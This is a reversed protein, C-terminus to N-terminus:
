RLLLPMAIRKEKEKKTKSGLDDPCTQAHASRHQPDALPPDELPPMALDAALPSQAPAAGLARRHTQGPAGQAGPWSQSDAVAVGSPRLGRIDERNAHRRADPLLRVARALRPYRRDTASDLDEPGAETYRPRSPSRVPQRKQGIPVTRILLRTLLLLWRRLMVVRSRLVVNSVVRIRVRDDLRPDPLGPDHQGKGLKHRQKGVLVKLRHLHGLEILAVLEAALDGVDLLVKAILSADFPVKEHLM